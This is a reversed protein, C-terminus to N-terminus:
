LLLTQSRAAATDFYISFMRERALSGELFFIPFPIPEDGRNMEGTRFVVKGYILAPTIEGAPFAMGPIETFHFIAMPIRGLIDQFLRNGIFLDDIEPFRPFLGCGPVGMIAALGTSATNKM